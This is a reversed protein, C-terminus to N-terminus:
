QIFLWNPVSQLSLLQLDSRPFVLFSSSLDVARFQTFKVRTTRLITLSFVHAVVAVLSVTRTGSNGNPYRDGSSPAMAHPLIELTRYLCLSKM